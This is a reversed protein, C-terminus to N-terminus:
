AGPHNTPMNRRTKDVAEACAWDGVSGFAVLVDVGAWDEEGVLRWGSVKTRTPAPSM